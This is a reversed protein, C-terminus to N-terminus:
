WRFEMGIMVGQAWFGTDHEVFAPSAVGTLTSPPLTRPVQSTNLYPNIQDGARVVNSWYMFSYGAFVRMNSTLQYGLNAGIEPIVSFGSSSHRGINSPLALLGGSFPLSPLGPSTFTTQGNIIVARSNVGLGIKSTADLSWRGQEFHGALGLQGGYFNTTTQFSDMIGLMSGNPLIFPSNLIDNVTSTSNTQVLDRLRQYRFGVLGDIRSTDNEYLFRRFNFDMGWLDSTTRATLTGALAANLSGDANVTGFAVAESSVKGTLVNFFPRAISPDGSSTFTNELRAQGLYFFSSEFGLTQSEDFWFGAHLRVGSRFGNLMSKYGFLASTGPEGPVGTEALPTGLPSSTVLAPVRMGSTKWLLYEPVFWYMTDERRFDFLGHSPGATGDDTTGYGMRGPDSMPMSITAAPTSEVRRPLIIEAAADSKPAPIIPESKLPAFSEPMPYKPLPSPSPSEGPLNPEPLNNPTPIVLPLTPTPGTLIAPTESSMPTAVQAWALMPITLWGVAATLLTRRNM